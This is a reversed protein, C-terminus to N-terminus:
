FMYGLAISFWNRYIKNQEIIPSYAIKNMIRGKDKKFRYGISLNTSFSNKRIPKFTSNDFYVINAITQGVGFDIHHNSGFYGHISIPIILDPNLNNNYDYLHYTSIGANVSLKLKDIQKLLYEYNLSGYGGAGGVEIYCLHKRNDMKEIDQGYNPKNFSLYICIIFLLKQKM